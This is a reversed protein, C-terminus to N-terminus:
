DGGGDYSPLADGPLCINVNESDCIDPQHTHQCAALTAAPAAMPEVALVYGGVYFFVPLVQLLWTLIWLGSFFGLPNTARPGEPSWRLITFAWHWLVVVILSVVRLWDV